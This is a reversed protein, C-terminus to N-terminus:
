AGAAEGRSGRLVEGHGGRAAPISWGPLEGGASYGAPVCRMWGQDVLNSSAHRLSAYAHGDMDTSREAEALERLAGSVNFRADRLWAPLADHDRAATNLARRTAKALTAGLARAETLEDATLWDAPDASVRQHAHCETRVRHQADAAWEDRSMDMVSRYATTPGEGADPSANAIDATPMEVGPVAGGEGEWVDAPGAETSVDATATEQREGAAAPFLALPDAAPRRRAPAPRAPTPAPTPPQGNGAAAPTPVGPVTPHALGQTEQRAGSLNSSGRAAGAPGTLSRGPLANSRDPTSATVPVGADIVPVGAAIVAQADVVPLAAANGLDFLAPEADSTPKPRTPRKAPSAAKAARAAEQQERRLQSRSKPQQAKWAEFDRGCPWAHNCWHKPHCTGPKREQVQEWTMPRVFLEAFLERTEQPRRDEVFEWDVGQADPDAQATWHLASSKWSTRPDSCVRVADTRRMWWLVRLRAPASDKSAIFVVVPGNSEAATEDDVQHGAEAVLAAPTPVDPVTGGEGEWVDAPLAQLEELRATVPYTDTDLLVWCFGDTGRRGRYTAPAGSGTTVMQGVAFPEAERREREAALEALTVRPIGGSLYPSRRRREEEAARPDAAEAVPETPTATDPEAPVAAHLTSGGATIQRARSLNSLEEAAEPAADVPARDGSSVEDQAAPEIVPM